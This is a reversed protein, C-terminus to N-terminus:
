GTYTMSSAPVKFLIPNEHGIDQAKELVKSANKGHAIVTIEDDKLAVWQGKFEGFLKTWNKATM